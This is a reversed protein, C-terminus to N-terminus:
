ASEAPAPRISVGNIRWEGGVEIMLYDAIFFRGEADEFIMAQSLGRPTESLAGARVSRPKWVMPYGSTVMRSFTEPDRFIGQITPSAFTFARSWDDARMAEVQSRIVTEIGAADPAGQAPAALPSLALLAALALATRRM